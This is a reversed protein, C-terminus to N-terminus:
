PSVNTKHFFLICFFIYIYYLKIRWLRVLKLSLASVKRPAPFIALNPYSGVFIIIFAISPTQPLYFLFSQRQFITVEPSLSLLQTIEQRHHLSDTNDYLIRKDMLSTLVLSYLPLFFHLSLKITIGSSNCLLAVPRMRM